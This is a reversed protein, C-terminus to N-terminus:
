PEDLNQPNNKAMEMRKFYLYYLLIFILTLMLESLFGSQPQKPFFYVSSNILILLQSISYVHFGTKSGKFMRIVGMLSAVYLVMMFLWYRPEIQTLINMGDQMMQMQEEGLMSSYPAMMEEMQGNQIQEKLVPVTVYMLFSTFIYICANILSLVLLVTMGVPRKKQEITEM